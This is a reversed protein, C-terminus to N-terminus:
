RAHELLLDVKDADYEDKAWDYIPAMAAKWQALENATPYYVTANTLHECVAM